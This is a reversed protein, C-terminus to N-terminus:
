LFIIFIMMVVFFIVSIITCITNLKKDKKRNQRTVGAIDINSYKQMESINLASYPSTRPAASNKMCQPDINGSEAPSFAGGKEEDYMRQAFSEETHIHGDGLNEAANYAGCHPCLGDNEEYDFLKKCEVCKKTSM